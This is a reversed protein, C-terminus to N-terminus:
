DMISLILADYKEWPYNNFNSNYDLINAVVGCPSGGKINTIPDSSIISHECIDVYVYLHIQMSKCIYM